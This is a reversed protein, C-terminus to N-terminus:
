LLTLLVAGLLVTFTGVAVVLFILLRKWYIKGIKGARHELPLYRENVDGTQFSHITEELREVVEERGEPFCVKNLEVRLGAHLRAVKESIEDMVDSPKPLM